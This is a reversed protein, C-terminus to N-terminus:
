EIVYVLQFGEHEIRFQLVTGSRETSPSGTDHYIPSSIDAPVANKRAIFYEGLAINIIEGVTNEALGADIQDMPYDQSLAISLVKQAVRTSLNKNMVMCVWGSAGGRISIEIAFDEPSWNLPGPGSSSDFEINQGAIKQFNETIKTVLEDNM